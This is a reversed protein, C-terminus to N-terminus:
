FNYTNNRSDKRLRRNIAQGRLVKKSLPKNFYMKDKAKLLLGSLGVKKNFRRLLYEIGEKEDKSTVTIM